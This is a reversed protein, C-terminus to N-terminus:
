LVVGQDHYCLCDEANDVTFYCGEANGDNFYSDEFIVATLYHDEEFTDVNLHCDVFRLHNTNYRQSRLGECACGIVLVAPRLIHNIGHQRRQLRTASSYCASTARQGVLLQIGWGSTSILKRKASATLPGTATGPLQVLRPVQVETIEDEKPIEQVLEGTTEEVRKPAM